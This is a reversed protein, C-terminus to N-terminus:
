LVCFPTLVHHHTQRNHLSFSLFKWTWVQAIHYIRNNPLWELLPNLVLHVLSVFESPLLILLDVHIWLYSLCESIACRYCTLVYPSNTAM